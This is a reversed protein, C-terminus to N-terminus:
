IIFIILKMIVHIIMMHIAIILMHQISIMILCLLAGLSLHGQHRDRHPVRPSVGGLYCCAVPPCVRLDGRGLTVGTSVRSSVFPPKTFPPKAM